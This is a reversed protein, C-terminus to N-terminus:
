YRREGGKRAYPNARARSRAQVKKACAPTAADAFIPDFSGMHASWLAMRFAAIEGRPLQNGNGNGGSHYEHDPQWAGIAIESDRNGDMSRQNINASGVIIYDDDVIM